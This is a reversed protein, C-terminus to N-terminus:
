FLFGVEDLSNLPRGSFEIPVPTRPYNNLSTQLHEFLANAHELDERYRTFDHSDSVSAEPLASLTSGSGGGGGIGRLRLTVDITTASTQFDKTLQVYL